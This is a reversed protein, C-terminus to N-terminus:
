GRNAASIMQCVLTLAQSKSFGEAVLAKYMDHLTKAAEDPSANGQNSIMVEKDPVFLSDDM